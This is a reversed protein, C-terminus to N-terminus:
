ETNVEESAIKKDSAEQIMSKVEHILYGLMYKPEVEDFHEYLKQFAQVSFDKAKKEDRLYFICVKYVDDAYRKYVEACKKEDM